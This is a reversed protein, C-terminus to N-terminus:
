HSFGDVNTAQYGLLGILVPHSHGVGVADAGPGSPGRYYGGHSVGGGVGVASWHSTRYRFLLIWTLTVSIGSTMGAMDSTRALSPMLGRPVPSPDSVIVTVLFM